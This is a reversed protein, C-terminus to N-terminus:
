VVFFCLKLQIDTRLHKVPIKYIKQKLECYCIIICCVKNKGKICCETLLFYINSVSSHILMFYM